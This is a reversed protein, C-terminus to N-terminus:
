GSKLVEQLWEGIFENLTLLLLREEPLVKDLFESVEEKLFAIQVLKRLRIRVLDSVNSEFRMRRLVNESSKTSLEKFNKLIEKIEMYFREKLSTFESSKLGKEIMLYKGVETDTIKQERLDVYGARLLEKALWYPLNAEDGKVFTEWGGEIRVRGLDRLVAVKVPSLDQYARVVDLMIKLM